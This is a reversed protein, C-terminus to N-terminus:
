RKLVKVGNVIYLGKPLNDASNGSSVKRGDIAYIGKDNAPMAASTGKIGDTQDIDIVMTTVSNKRIRFQRGLRQPAYSTNKNLTLTGKQTSLEYTEYCKVSHADSIGVVNPVIRRVSGMNVFVMVIRNGDPSLYASGMLGNLDTDDIAM